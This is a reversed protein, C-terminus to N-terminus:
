RLEYGNDSCTILRHLICTKTITEKNLYDIVEVARGGSVAEIGERIGREHSQRVERLIVDSLRSLSEEISM